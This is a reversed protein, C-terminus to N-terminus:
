EDGHKMKIFDAFKDRSLRMFDSLSLIDADEGQKPESVMRPQLGTQESKISIRNQKFDEMM